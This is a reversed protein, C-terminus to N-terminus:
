KNRWKNQAESMRRKTEDSRKIGKLKASITRKTEESINRSAEGIKRKTEESHKKGRLADSMKRKSEETHKRGRLSESIKKKSEESYGSGGFGGEKLNYCMKDAVQEPGVFVKEMFYMSESNTCICLVEKTFNERGHKKIARNIKLGSGMYSDNLEGKHAGIYYKNNINNTIKYIYYDM